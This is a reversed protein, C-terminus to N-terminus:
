KTDPSMRSFKEYKRELYISSDKYMFDYISVLAQRSDTRLYKMGEVNCKSDIVSVPLYRRMDDLFENTGIVNWVVSDYIYKKTVGTKLTHYSTKKSFAITGDGDFYGRIFHRYLDERIKPLKKMTTSKNPYLGLKRLDSTLEKSSFNLVVKPKSNKYCGEVNCITRISGTFSIKDKIKELICKDKESVAIVLNNFKDDGVYGDAYIFGLIYAKDENDIEKFYDENLTYRNKRKTNIGKEKLVRFLARRSIGLREIIENYLVDKYYLELINEIDKENLMNYPKM